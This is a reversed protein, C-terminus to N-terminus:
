PEIGLAQNLRAIALGHQARALSRQVYNAPILCRRAEGLAARLRTNKKADFRTAEDGM